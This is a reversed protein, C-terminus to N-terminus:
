EKPPESTAPLVPPGLPSAALAVPGSRQTRPVVLHGLHIELDTVAEYIATQLLWCQEACTNATRIAEFSGRLKELAAEVHTNEDIQKSV